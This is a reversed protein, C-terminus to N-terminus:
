SAQLELAPYDTYGREDGGYFTSRDWENLQANVAFRLPLDPNSIFLRGFAVLDADGSALVANGQELDYGGAAILTGQFIPRFYGV